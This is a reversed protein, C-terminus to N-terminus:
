RSRSGGHHSAMAGTMGTLFRLVVELEPVSFEAMVQDSLRGLPGFFDEAVAHGHESYHLHVTRRDRTSRRRELHGDRVLRDIVGTTAGSTLGLAAALQGATAPEGHAESQLVHLLAELDTQHLGQQAAFTHAVRQAEVGLRQVLEVIQAGLEDRAGRTPM